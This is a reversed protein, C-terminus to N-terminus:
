KNTIHFKPQNSLDNISLTLTMEPDLIIIPRFDQDFLTIEITSFSQAKIDNYVVSSPNTYILTGLDNGIPLTYLINNPISYKSSVLNCCFIISNIPNIVPTFTSVYEVNTSSVTPPYTGFNLGILNGFNQNFSLQPTQPLQPSVPFNWTAGAPKTYRLNTAQTQTPIAFVNLQTAYRSINVLFEVFYINNAGSNTTVYLNHLICQQQLFYNIADVSYYGDKLVFIYNTGLFNLNLTNNQRLATINLFSNYISIGAVGVSCGADFKETQPFRYSYLNQTGIVFNTSNIVVTKM